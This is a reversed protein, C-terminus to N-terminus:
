RPRCPHVAPPARASARGCVLAAAPGQDYMLAHCKSGLGDVISPLVHLSCCVAAPRAANERQRAARSVRLLSHQQEDMRRATELGIREDEEGQLRVALARDANYGDLDHSRASAPLRFDAASSGHAHSGPEMVRRHHHMAPSTPQQQRRAPNLYLYSPPPLPAMGSGSAAAAEARGSAASAAAAQAASRLRAELDGVRM